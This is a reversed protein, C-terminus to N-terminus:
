PRVRVTAQYGYYPSPPIEYAGGDPPQYPVTAQDLIVASSTVDTTAVNVLLSFVNWNNPATPPTGPPTTIPNSACSTCAPVYDPTTALPFTNLTPFTSTAGVASISQAPWSGGAFFNGAVVARRGLQGSTRQVYAVLKQAQLLQEAEWEADSTPAGGGYQGVYPHTPGTYTTDLFTCYFDFTTSAGAALVAHAIAVRWQTSPLVWQDSSVVPFRSLIIAGFDGDFSLGAKVNQECDSQLKSWPSGSEMEALACSWCAPEGVALAAGQSYCSNSLCDAGSAIITGSTDNPSTSCSAIACTLFSQLAADSPMCPPSTPPAPIGGDQDTPDDFPTDLTDKFQVSYPYMPKAEAAIADRSASPFVDSVCEVDADLHAAADLAAQGRVSLLPTFTGTLYLDFAAARVDVIEGCDTFAGRPSAEDCMVLELPFRADTNSGAAFVTYGHGTALLRRILRSIAKQGSPTVGYPPSSSLFDNSVYGNADVAYPAGTWPAGAHGSAVNTFYAVLLTTPTAADATLGFDLAPGGAVANLLRLSSNEGQAITEPFPMLEITQATSALLYAATTAGGALVVGRATAVPSGCGSGPAAVSVDYTGPPLGIPALVDAFGISAPCGPGAAGPLPVDDLTSTGDTRHLCVAYRDTSPVFDGVRVAATGLAPLTCVPAADADGSNGGDDGAGSDDGVGSSAVYQLDHLGAIARCAGLVLVLVVGLLVRRSTVMVM